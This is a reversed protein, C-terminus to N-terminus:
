LSDNSVTLSMELSNEKKKNESHSDVASYLQMIKSGYVVNNVGLMIGLLVLLGLTMNNLIRFQEMERQKPDSDYMTVIKEQEELLCQVAPSTIKVDDTFAHVSLYGTFVVISCVAFGWSFVTLPTVVRLTTNRVDSSMFLPLVITVLLCLCCISAGVTVIYGSNYGRSDMYLDPGCPTHYDKASHVLMAVIVVVCTMVVFKIFIVITDQADGMWSEVVSIASSARKKTKLTTRVRYHVLFDVILSLALPVVVGWVLSSFHDSLKRSYDLVGTESVSFCFQTRIMFHLRSLIYIILLVRTVVIFIELASTISIKKMLINDSIRKSVRKIENNVNMQLLMQLLEAVMYLVVLATVFSDVERTLSSNVHLEDGHYILKGHANTIACTSCQRNHSNASTVPTPTTSGAILTTLPDYLDFDAPSSHVTCNKHEHRVGKSVMVSFGVSLVFLFASACKMLSM